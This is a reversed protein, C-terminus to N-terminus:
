FCGNITRSHATFFRCKEFPSTSAIEVHLKRVIWSNPATDSHWATGHFMCFLLWHLRNPQKNQNCQHLQNGLHRGNTSYRGDMQTDVHLTSRWHHSSHIEVLYDIKLNPNSCWATFQIAIQHVWSSNLCCFSSTPYDVIKKPLCVNTPKGGFTLREIPCTPHWEIKSEKWLPKVLVTQGLKGLADRRSGFWRDDIM